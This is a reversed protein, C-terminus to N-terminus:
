LNAEPIELSNIFDRIPQNPINAQLRHLLPRLRTLEDRHYEVQSTLLDLLASLGAPELKAAEAEDNPTTIGYYAFRALAHGEDPHTPNTM